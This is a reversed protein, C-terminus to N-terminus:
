KEWRARAADLLTRIQKHMSLMAREKNTKRLAEVEARAAALDRKLDHEDILLAGNQNCLLECKRLYEDRERRAAELSSLLAPLHDVVTRVAGWLEIETPNAEPHVYAGWLDIHRRLTEEPTVASM